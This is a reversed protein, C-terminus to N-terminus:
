SIKNIFGRLNRSEIKVLTDGDLQLDKFRKKCIFQGYNNDHNNFKCKCCTYPLCHHYLPGEISSTAGDLVMNKFSVSDLRM